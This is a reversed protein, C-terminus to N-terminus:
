LEGRIIKNRTENEELKKYIKDNYVETNFVKKFHQTNFNILIEEILQRNLHTKVIKGEKDKKYLRKLAGKIEKGINRSM